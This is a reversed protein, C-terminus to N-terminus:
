LCLYLFFGFFPPTQFLPTITLTKLPQKKGRYFKFRSAFSQVELCTSESNNGNRCLLAASSGPKRRLGNYDLLCSRRCPMSHCLHGQSVGSARRKLIDRLVGGFAGTIIGMVTAIWMHYGAALSKQIGIVCFLALGISDFIFLIRDRSVLFSRFVIVTVLSLATVAVYWGSQMWFVPIGILLDRLTGGGIATVLGVTYAGFWDFRKTAALRIGSIAAAVTGIMEIIFLFTTTEMAISQSQHHTGFAQLILLLNQYRAKKFIISVIFNFFHSIVATAYSLHFFLTIKHNM